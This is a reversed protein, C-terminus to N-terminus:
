LYIALDLLIVSAIVALWAPAARAHLLGWGQTEALLATGVAATPLVLRVLATDLVVIGLNGPWRTLRGIAQRRRPALLEWLAMAAFIGAFAGLRVAPEYTLLIKAV